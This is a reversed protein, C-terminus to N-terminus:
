EWFVKTLSKLFKGFNYRFIAQNPWVTLLTGFKARTFWNQTYDHVEEELLVFGVAKNKKSHEINTRNVFSHCIYNWNFVSWVLQNSGLTVPHFTCVFWSPKWMSKNYFNYQQEFLGFIFSFSAPTIGNFFCINAYSHQFVASM